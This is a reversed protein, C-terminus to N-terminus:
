ISADSGAKLINEMNSYMKSTSKVTFYGVTVGISVAAIIAVTIVIWATSVVLAAQAKAADADAKIKEELIVIYATLEHYNTDVQMDLTDITNMVAFFGTSPTTVLTKFTTWWTNIKSVLTLNDSGIQLFAFHEDFETVANNFETIIAAEVEGYYEHFLNLSKMFYYKCETANMIMSINTEGAVLNELDTVWGSTNVDLEEMTSWLYEYLDFIGTDVTVILAVFAEHSNDIKTLDTSYQPVLVSLDTFLADLEGHLTTFEAEMSTNGDMYHNLAIIM